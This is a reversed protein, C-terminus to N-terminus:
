PRPCGLSHKGVTEAWRCIRGGASSIRDGWAELDASFQDAAKQSTAIDDTPVPKAETVAKLDDAPPIIGGPTTCAAVALFSALLPSLRTLRPKSRM